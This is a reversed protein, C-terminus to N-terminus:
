KERRLPLIVNTFVLMCFLIFVFVGFLFFSFDDTGHTTTTVVEHSPTFTLRYKLLCSGVVVYPDGTWEYGECSVILSGFEYEDTMTAECDWQVRDGDFGKNVCRVTKPQFRICTMGFCELQPRHDGQLSRTFTNEYFTLAEIDRLLIRDGVVRRCLGSGLIALGVCLCLIFEMKKNIIDEVKKKKGLM